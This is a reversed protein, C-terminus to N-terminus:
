KKKFWESLSIKKLKGIKEIKILNKAELNMLIRTLSTKAMGLGYVIKSQSISEKDSLEKILFRIVDKEKRDLATIIDEKGVNKEIKTISSVKKPRRIYYLLVAIM